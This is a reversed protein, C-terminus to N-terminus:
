KYIFCIGNYDIIKVEKGVFFKEPKGTLDYAKISEYNHNLVQVEPYIKSITTKKAIDEKRAVIEYEKNNFDFLHEKKTNVDIGTFNKGHTKLVMLENNATKIIDYKNFDALRVLSNVRYINKSSQHDFSFLQSSHDLFGGYESHMKQAIDQMTKKNTLYIDIGNKSEVIKNVETNKKNDILNFLEEKADEFNNNEIGRLQLVGEFYNSMHKQCNACISKKLIFRVKKTYNFTKQSVLRFQLDVNYIEKHEDSESPNHHLKIDLSKMTYFPNIKLGKKITDKIILEVKRKDKFWDKNYSYSDCYECKLLRNFKVRKVFAEKRNLCEICLFGDATERNKGCKYCKDKVM